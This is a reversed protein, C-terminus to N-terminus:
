VMLYPDEALVGVRTDDVPLGDLRRRRTAEAQAHEIRAPELLIEYIDGPPNIFQSPRKEVLAFYRRLCADSDFDSMPSCQIAPGSSARHSLSRRARGRRYEVGAGSTRSRRLDEHRDWM